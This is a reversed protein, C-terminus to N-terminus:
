VQLHRLDRSWPHNSGCPGTQFPCGQSNQSDPATPALGSVAMMAPLSPSLLWPTYSSHHCDTSPRVEMHAQKTSIPLLKLTTADSYNFALAHHNNTTNLPVRPSSPATCPCIFNLGQEPPRVPEVWARSLAGLSSPQDTPSQPAPEARWVKSLLPHSPEPTPSSLSTSASLARLLLPRDCVTVLAANICQAVRGHRQWGHM